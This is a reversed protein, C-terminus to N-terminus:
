SPSIVRLNLDRASQKLREDYTVFASLGRGLTEAAALHLADLSRLSTGPALHGARVFIPTALRIRVTRQLLGEALKMDRADARTRQMIRRLETHALDCTVVMGLGGSRQLWKELAESEAEVQILKALACTDFYLM